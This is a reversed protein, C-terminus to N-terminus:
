LLSFLILFIKGMESLILDIEEKRGEKREVKRGKKKKEEQFPAQGLQGQVGLELLEGSRIKWSRPNNDRCWAWSIEDKM